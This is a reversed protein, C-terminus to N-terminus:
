AALKRYQEVYYGSDLSELQNEEERREPIQGGSYDAWSGIQLINKAANVDRDESHGCHQCEYIRDALTLKEDPMCGCESCIQSTYKPNVKKVWGGAEEAKYTLIQIFTGWQQELISRALKHNKILNMIKLDEVYFKAGHEKILMRTLEHLLGRERERVRQWEKALSTRKKNRSNSGKKACSLTRQRKKVENRDVVNKPSQYGNSLTVREKIGVDIGIPQRTDEVLEIEREVVVQLVVRRPTKVIRLLRPTGKVGGKFRFRGIGKIKVSNWDDKTYIRFQTAEFSSVRGYSKFRPFGPKEGNRVRRFFNKFATDLRKLASKQSHRDYNSFGDIEKRITTLSGQQANYSISVGKGHACIREELAANWLQRQQELFSELHKHTKKSVSVPFAQTRNIKM